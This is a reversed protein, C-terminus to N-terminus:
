VFTTFTLVDAGAGGTVSIGDSDDISATNGSGSFTLLDAGTGGMITAATVADAFLITDVGIGGDVSDGSGANITDNGAGGTLTDNGAGGTLTDNGAGGTLSDNGTGGTISNAGASGIIISAGSAFGNITLAEAQDSLNVTLDTATLTVIEINSLKTGAGSFAAGVQLVDGTGDGGDISDAAAGVIVDNGAGGTLSDAGSGGILIDAKGGGTLTDGSSSQAVLTFGKLGLASSVDITNTTADVNAKLIATGDNKTGATATFGAALNVTATAGASVELIDNTGFENVTDSGATVQFTDIATGGTLTDNGAGGVLVGGAATATYTNGDIVTNSVVVPAPTSIANNGATDQIAADTAVVTTEAAPATYSVTVTAADTQKIPTTLTLEVTAGNVVAATVTNATTGVKVVFKDTSALATALAQSYVLIIKTGDASTKATLLTPATTDTASADITYTAVAASVKSINGAVDTAKATLKPKGAVNYNSTSTDLTWNGNADTTTTGLTTTGAFVEVIAGKEATGTLTPLAKGTTETIANIKPALPAVTDIKITKVASNASINGAVDTAVVNLQHEGDPLKVLAKWKGGVDVKVAKGLAETGDAGGYVQVMAGAEGTGALTQSAVKAISPVTTDITPLLTSTDLKLAVVKSAVSENGAADKAKATINYTTNDTILAKLAATTDDGVKLTWAGTQKDATTKGLSQTGAFVEVTTGKEAKGTLTPTPNSTALKIATVTPAAPAKTDLTVTVVPSPPGFLTTTGETFMEQAVLSFLGDKTTLGGADPVDFTWTGDTASVTANGLNKTGNFLAVKSTTSTAVGSLTLANWTTANFITSAPANILLTGVTAPANFDFAFAQTLSAPATGVFDTSAFVVKLAGADTALADNTNAHALATGTFSLKATTASTKVLVPTLGNATADWATTGDLKKVSGLTDGVAGAFIGETLTITVSTAIAGNNGSSEKLTTTSYALTAAM